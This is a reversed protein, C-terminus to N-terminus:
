CLTARTFLSFLALLTKPVFINHLGVCAGGGDNRCSNVRVSSEVTSAGLLVEGRSMMDIDKIFSVLNIEVAMKKM